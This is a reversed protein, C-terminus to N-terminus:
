QNEGQSSTTKNPHFLQRYFVGYSAFFWPLLFLWLSFIVVAVLAIGHFDAPFIAYLETLPLTTMKQQDIKELLVSLKYGGIIGPILFPIVTMLFYTSFFPFWVRTVARRSLELAKWATLDWEIILPLAFWYAFSLYIGPFILLLFGFLTLLTKMIGGIFVQRFYRRDFGRFCTNIGVRKGKGHRIGLYPLGAESNGSLGMSILTLMGGAFGIVAAPLNLKQLSGIILGNESDLIFTIALMLIILLLAGIRCVFAFRRNKGLQWSEKLIESVNIEPKPLLLQTIDQQQNKSRYFKGNPSFQEEGRNEQDTALFKEGCKPCTVERGFLSDDASGTTKCRPCSINM